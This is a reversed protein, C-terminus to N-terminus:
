RPWWGYRERIIKRIREADKRKLWAEEGFVLLLVLVTAVVYFWM